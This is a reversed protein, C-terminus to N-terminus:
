GSACHPTVESESFSCMEPNPLSVIQERTAQKNSAAVQVNSSALPLSLWEWWRDQNGEKQSCKLGKEDAFLGKGGHLQPGPGGQSITRTECAYAQPHPEHKRWSTDQPQTQSPSPPLHPPGCDSGRVDRGLFMNLKSPMTSLTSTSTMIAMPPPKNIAENKRM